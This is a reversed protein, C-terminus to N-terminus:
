VTSHRGSVCKQYAALATQYKGYERDLHKQDNQLQLQQAALTAYAARLGIAAGIAVILSGVAVIAAGYLIAGGETVITLIVSGILVVVSGGLTVQDATITDQTAKINANDVIIVYAAELVDDMASNMAKEEVSCDKSPKSCLGLPDFRNVAKNSVYGYVNSGESEGIPDRSLWKATNPDYARYKTLNLGSTQHEYYGAYQFDALNSGQVLSPRGYPDYDYRAAISGASTTLERVSGLHDRTYYYM